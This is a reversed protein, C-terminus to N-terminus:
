ESRLTLCRPLSPSVELLHRPFIIFFGGIKLFQRCTTPM